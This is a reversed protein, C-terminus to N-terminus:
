VKSVFTVNVPTLLHLELFGIATMEVNLKGFFTRKTHFFPVLIEFVSSVATVSYSKRDAFAECKQKADLYFIDTLPIMEDPNSRVLLGEM